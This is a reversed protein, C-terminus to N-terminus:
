NMNTRSSLLSAQPRASGAPLVALVASRGGDGDARWGRCFLRDGDQWLVQLGDEGQGGFRFSLELPWAGSVIAENAVPGTLM